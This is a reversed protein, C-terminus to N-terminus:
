LRQTLDPISQQIIASSTQRTVLEVTLTISDLQKSPGHIIQELMQVCRAGAEDKPTRITTLCATHAIEEDNFGVVSVDDPVCIGRSALARIAGFAGMDGAVFLATFKASNECLEIVADAGMELEGKSASGIPEICKLGVESMARAYGLFRRNYWPLSIDGVFRIATHGLSLLHSTALYGGTEDDAYVANPLKNNGDIMNTGFIVYPLDLLDIARLLNPYNVGALIIGDILGKAAIIRPLEIQTPNTDPAYSCTAYVMQIAEKDAELSAGQLVEAHVSHIFPRNSLLFCFTGSGGRALLRARLNPRYGLKAVSEEVRRVTSSKVRWPKNLARSVTATSVGSDAAVEHITISEKKM